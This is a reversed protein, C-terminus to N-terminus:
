VPAGNNYKHHCLFDKGDYSKHHFTIADYQLIKDSMGGGGFLIDKGYAATRDNALKLFHFKPQTGHWASTPLSAFSYYIKLLM